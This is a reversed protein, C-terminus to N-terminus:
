DAAPRRALLFATGPPRLELQLEFFGKEELVRLARGVPYVYDAGPRLRRRSGLLLDALWAVPPLAQQALALAPAANPRYAFAVVLVGGRDVLGALVGLLRLGELPPISRLADAAHVLDFGDGLRDLEASRAFVANGARQAQANRRAEALLDADEDIGVAHEFRRAFAITRAGVGCGFDLAARKRRLQLRPLLRNADAEAAELLRAAAVQESLAADDPAADTV